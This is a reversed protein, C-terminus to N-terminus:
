GDDLGVAHFLKGLGDPVNAIDFQRGSRVVSRGLGLLVQVIATDVYEANECCVCVNRDGGALSVAASHLKMASAVTMRGRLSLRSWDPRTTDDAVSYGAQEGM